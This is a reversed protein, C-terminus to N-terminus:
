SRPDPHDPSRASRPAPTSEAPGLGITVFFGDQRVANYVEEVSIGEIGELRDTADLDVTMAFRLDDLYSRDREPLVAAIDAGAPVFVFYNQPDASRYVDCRM